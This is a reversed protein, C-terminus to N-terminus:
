RVAGALPNSALTGRRFLPSRRRNTLSSPDYDLIDRLARPAIADPVLEGEGAEMDAEGRWREGASTAPRNANTAVLRASRGGYPLSRRMASSHHEQHSQRLKWAEVVASTAVPLQNNNHPWPRRPGVGRGVCVLDMAAANM